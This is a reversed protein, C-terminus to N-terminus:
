INNKFYDFVEKDQKEDGPPPNDEGGFKAAYEAKIKDRESIAADRETTRTELNARAADRESIAADRETTRTKLDARAADRESIAADREATIEEITM